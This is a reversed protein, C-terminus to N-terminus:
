LNPGHYILRQIKIKSRGFVFVSIQLQLKSGFIMPSRKAIHYMKGQYFHRNRKMIRRHSQGKMQFFIQSPYKSDFRQFNITFNKVQSNLFFYM